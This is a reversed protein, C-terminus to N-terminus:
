ARMSLVTLGLERASERVAKEKWKLEAANARAIVKERKKMARASYNLERRSHCSSIQKCVGTRSHVKASIKMSFGARRTCASPAVCSVTVKLLDIMGINLDPTTDRLPFANVSLNCTSDRSRVKPKRSLKRAVRQRARARRGRAALQMSSSRHHRVLARSASDLRISSTTLIVVSHKSTHADFHHSRRATRMRAVLFAENVLHDM